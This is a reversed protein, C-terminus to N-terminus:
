GFSRRVADDAEYAVRLRDRPWSAAVGGVRSQVARYIAARTAPGLEGDEALKAGNANLARQIARVDLRGASVASAVPATPMSFVKRSPNSRAIRDRLPYIGSEVPGAPAHDATWRSVIFAAVEQAIMGM